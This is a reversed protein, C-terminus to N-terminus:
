SIIIGVKIKKDIKNELFNIGYWNHKMVMLTDNQENSLLWTPM